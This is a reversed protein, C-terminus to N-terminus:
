EAADETRQALKNVLVFPTSAEVERMSNPTPWLARGVSLGAEISAAHQEASMLLTQSKGFDDWYEQLSERDKWQELLYKLKAAVSAHESPDARKAREEIKAVLAPLRAVASDDLVPNDAMGPILHRVLAVLAAHLAKDQARAAFPTVSTAEVERYLTDHWTKFTEFRARDRARGANYLAVVLGPASRGVRSTAQIYEAITKPQGVVLMVGLRPIDVGVSIMNSALLTDQCGEEGHKRELLNLMEVIESSSVRSTLEAPTALGRAVEAHRSAYQEITFPVDDQMLVLSGGLERLTNFYAVLTWYPDRTVDSAGPIGAAAQLLCASVAQVAFKASRGATTIGLYRRGPRELTVKAFGSDAADLGPPPFQFADRVFLSRIQQEARRITATSGVVKPYVGKHGVLEDIATEYLGTMSGLPGSILHLEDQIILDPPLWPQGIAFFRATERKRVIQAFKDVTGLLLSPTERYIDEDVTWIPLEAGSDRLKCPRKGVCSPQCRGARLDPRWDLEGKCCPCQRLQRHSGRTVDNSAADKM